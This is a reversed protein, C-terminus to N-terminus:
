IGSLEDAMEEVRKRLNERVEAPVGIAEYSDHLGPAPLEKAYYSVGIHKGLQNALNVIHLNKRMEAREEDKNFYEGMDHHYRAVYAFEDGLNWKNILSEGFQTHWQRLMELVEPMSLLQNNQKQFFEGLVRLLFLEGINHMLGMLYLEEPDQVEIAVAIERCMCATLFHSRWMKEFVAKFAPSRFNFMGKIVETHVLNRIAINGLRTLTNPLDTISGEWLKGGYTASNATAVLRASLSPDREVIKQVEKVDVDLDDLLTNLDKLISPVEPLDINGDKIKRAIARILDRAQPAALESDSGPLLSKKTRKEILDFAGRVSDETAPKAIWDICGARVASILDAREGGASIVVTPLTRKQTSVSMLTDGGGMEDSIPDIFLCAAGANILALVEAKRQAYVVKVGLTAILQGLQERSEQDADAVVVIVKAM